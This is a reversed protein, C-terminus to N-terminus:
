RRNRTPGRSEDYASLEARALQQATLRGEDTLRYVGAGKPEVLGHDSLRGQLSSSVSNRHHGTRDGVNKPADDGHLLLDVLINEHMPTLNM